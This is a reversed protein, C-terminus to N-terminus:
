AKKATGVRLLDHSQIWFAFGGIASIVLFYAAVLQGDVYLSVSLIYAFVIAFLAILSILTKMIHYM